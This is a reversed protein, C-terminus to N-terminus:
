VRGGKQKVIHAGKSLAGFLDKIDGLLGASKRSTSDRDMKGGQALRSLAAGSLEEGTVDVTTNIMDAFAAEAQAEADQLGAGPSLGSAECTRAAAMAEAIGVEVNEDTAGVAVRTGRGKRRRQQQQQRARRRAEKGHVHTATFRSSPGPSTGCSTTSAIVHRPVARGAAQARLAIVRSPSRITSTANM